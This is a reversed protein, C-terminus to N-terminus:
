KKKLIIIFYHPYLAWTHMKVSLNYGGADNFPIWAYYAAQRCGNPWPTSVLKKLSMLDHYM